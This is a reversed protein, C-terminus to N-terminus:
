YFFEDFEHEDEYLKGYTTAMKKLESVTPYGDSKMKFLAQLRFRDYWQIKQDNIETNKLRNLIRRCVDDVEKDAGFNSILIGLARTKTMEKNYNLKDPFLLRGLLDNHIRTVESNVIKYALFQLNNVNRYAKSKDVNVIANFTKKLYSTLKFLLDQLNFEYNFAIVSDDGLVKVEFDKKEFGANIMAATIMVFNIHSGLLQTQYLGSGFGSHQREYVHGDPMVFKEKTAAETMYSWLREIEHSQANTRFSNAPDSYYKNLDCLSKWVSHIDEIIWHPVRKDFASFDLSIFCDFNKFEDRLRCLGGKYTEYGWAIANRNRQLHINLPHILMMEVLITRYPTGSILRLKLKNRHTLPNKTHIRTYSTNEYGIKGQMIEVVKKREKDFIYPMGNGKSPARNLIEGNSFRKLIFTLFHQDAIYPLEASATTNQPIFPTGEYHIIKFKKSININNELEILAKKYFPCRTKIIEEPQLRQLESYMHNLTKPCRHYTNVLNNVKKQGCIEIIAQEAYMEPRQKKDSFKCFFGSDKKIYKLNSINKPVNM